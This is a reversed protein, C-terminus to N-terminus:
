EQPIFTSVDLAGRELTGIRIVGAVLLVLVISLAAWGTIACWATASNREPINRYTAIPWLAMCPTIDLPYIDIGDIGWQSNCEVTMIIRDHEKQKITCKLIM